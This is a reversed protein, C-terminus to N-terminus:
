EPFRGRLSNAWADTVVPEALRGILHDPGKFNLIKNSRTRGTLQEPYRVSRGEVLVEVSRGVLKQNCAITIEKQTNQLELLRDSKVNEDIKGKMKSAKTQPRDSYMFSFMGDYRVQHVLDMTARFDEDSEGPFGVIIDTTLAIDPCIERLRTVRALYDDRTYGRRMASLIRDSGSQVPLHVHECLPGVDAIARILDDSLDKPHSTTFRLRWLGDIDAVRAVLDAFSIPRELGRGYSNVNQGLLTIERAGRAVLSEAEAVIDEPLRSTERGRVYPVVCYSCFNDCGQMVTLFATLPAPETDNEPRSLDYDFETYVLPRDDAWADRILDPLRNLGHTGVVVDVIPARRVVRKGEQQAVCGGVVIMLDPRAAKLPRLRGLFSYLKQVAKERISCTNIFILDARNVDQTAAYGLGALLKIVRHSDYDNMQCGFTIVCALRRDSETDTRCLSDNSTLINMYRVLVANQGM